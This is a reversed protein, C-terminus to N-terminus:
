VVPPNVPRRSGSQYGTAPGQLQGPPPSPEPTVEKGRIRNLAVLRREYEFKQREDIREEDSDDCADMSVVQEWTQQVITPVADIPPPAPGHRWYAPNPPMNEAVEVRLVPVARGDGSSFERPPPPPPGPLRASRPYYEHHHPLERTDIPSQQPTGDPRHQVIILPATDVRQRKGGRHSSQPASAPAAAAQDAKGEIQKKRALYKPNTDVRKITEDEIAMSKLFEVRLNKMKQAFAHEESTDINEAEMEAKTLRPLLPAKGPHEKAYEDNFPNLKDPGELYHFMVWLFAQARLKSSINIPIFLDLFDMSPDFHNRSFPIVHNTLVFMLNIASTPPATGDTVVKVVEGPTAPAHTKEHNLLCAKLCAKMRPADMMNRESVPTKM